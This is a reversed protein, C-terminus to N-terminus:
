NLMRKLGQRAADSIASIDSPPPSDYYALDRLGTDGAVIVPLAQSYDRVGTGVLQVGLVRGSRREAVLSCTLGGSEASAELWDFGCIGAERANIGAAALETGFMSAQRFRTVKATAAGGAANIGAVKGMLSAVGDATSPLSSAGCKTESCDGAAFLGEQSSKMDDGVVVGGSRSRTLAVQPVFPFFDPVVVLADCPFVIEGSVVGEVEGVGIVRDPHRSHLAVGASLVDGNFRERTADNLFSALLDGESFISISIGRAALKDAVDLSSLGDGVVAVQSYGGLQEALERFASAGGLFHSRKRRGALSDGASVKAGTALVVGDYRTQGDETEVTGGTSVGVVRSGLHMAVGLSGLRRESPPVDPEQGLLLSSWLSKPTEPKKSSDFVVVEAGGGAAAEAAAIGAIGGGVM